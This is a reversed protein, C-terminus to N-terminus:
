AMTELRKLSVTNDVAEGRRYRDIQRVVWDSFRLVDREAFGAIHPLVVVNALKRLPGDAPYPEQTTVDLVASRLPEEAMARALDAEVVQAGRGTNIFAATKKMAHFLRYDLMGVTQPNNALHNSVVQCTSFLEELSTKRVGLEAAAAESLFPDFTLVEVDYPALLRAVERGIQGMGILGIPTRDYLGPYTQTICHHSYAYDGNRYLSWANYYGRACQIILSLTLQAVPKAMEDASTAVTVGNELYPRAFYRVSGAAYLVLKLSPFYTRVQEATFVPSEWTGIVIEVGRLEDRYRELNTTDIVYPLLDVRRAVEEKRGHAFVFDLRKTGGEEVFCARM